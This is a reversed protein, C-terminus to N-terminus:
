IEMARCTRDPRLFFGVGGAPPELGKQNVGFLHGIDQSYLVGVIPGQEYLGQEISDIPHSLEFFFIPTQEHPFPVLGIELVGYLVLEAITPMRIRLMVWPRALIPITTELRTAQASKECGLLRSTERLNSRSLEGGIIM